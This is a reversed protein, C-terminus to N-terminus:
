KPKTAETVVKKPRLTEVTWNSRYLDILDKEDAHHNIQFNHFRCNEHRRQYFNQDNTIPRM